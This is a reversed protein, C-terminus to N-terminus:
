SVEGAERDPDFRRWPRMKELQRLVDLLLAEAHPKAVVQVALPLGEASIGAPISAAPFGALNWPVTLTWSAVGMTTTFWGKGDWKGIPVPPEALTPLVLVDFDEFWAMAKAGFPDAAVAQGM